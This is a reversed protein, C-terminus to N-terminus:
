ILGRAPVGSPVVGLIRFPCNVMRGVSPAM